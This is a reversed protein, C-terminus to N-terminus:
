VTVDCDSSVPILEAQDPEQTSSNQQWIFEGYKFLTVWKNLM